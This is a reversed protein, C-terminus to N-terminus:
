DISGSYVFLTISLIFYCIVCAIKITRSKGRENDWRESLKSYTIFKKYRIFNLVILLLCIGIYIFVPDFRFFAKLSLKTFSLLFVVNFLQFLSLILVGSFEKQIEYGWKRGYLYAISYYVYDFIVLPNMIRKNQMVKMILWYEM